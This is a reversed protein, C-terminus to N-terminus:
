VHSLDWSRIMVKGFCFEEPIKMEPFSMASIPRPLLVEIEM